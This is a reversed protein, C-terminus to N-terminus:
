LRINVYFSLERSRLLFCFIEDDGERFGDFVRLIFNYIDNELYWFSVVTLRPFVLFVARATGAMLAAMLAPLIGQM